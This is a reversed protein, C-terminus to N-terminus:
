TVMFDSGVQSGSNILLVSSLPHVTLTSNEPLLYNMQILYRVNELFALQSKVFAKLKDSCKYDNM